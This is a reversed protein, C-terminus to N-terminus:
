RGGRTLARTAVARVRAIEAELESARRLVRHLEQEDVHGDATADGVENSLAGVKAQVLLAARELSLGSTVSEAVRDLEAGWATHLGRQVAPPMLKADRLTLALDHEPDCLDDVVSRSVGIADACLGHSSGADAIARHLGRSERAGSEVRRPSM